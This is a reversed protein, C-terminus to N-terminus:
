MNRARQKSRQDRTKRLFTRRNQVTHKLIKLKHFPLHVDSSFRVSVFLIGEVFGELEDFAQDRKTIGLLGFAADFWELLHMQKSKKM